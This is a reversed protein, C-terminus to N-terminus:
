QMLTGLYLVSFTIMSQATWFDGRMKPSIQTKQDLIPSKQSKVFIYWYRQSCSLVPRGKSIGQSLERYASYWLFTM